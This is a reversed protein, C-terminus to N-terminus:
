ASPLIACRFIAAAVSSCGRTPVAVTLGHGTHSFEHLAIVGGDIRPIRVGGRRQEGGIGAIVAGSVRRHDPLLDRVEVVALPDDIGTRVGQLLDEDVAVPGGTASHEVAAALVPGLGRHSEGGEE